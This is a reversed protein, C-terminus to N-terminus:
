GKIRSILRETVIRMDETTGITVRLYSQLHPTSFHRVLIGDDSSFRRPTM